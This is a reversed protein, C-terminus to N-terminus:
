LNTATQPSRRPSSLKWFKAYEENKGLRCRGLVLHGHRGLGDEDEASALEAGGDELSQSRVSIIRAVVNGDKEAWGRQSSSIGVLLLFCGM